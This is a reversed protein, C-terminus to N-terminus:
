PNMVTDKSGLIRLKHHDEHTLALNKHHEDDLTNKIMYNLSNIKGKVIDMTSFTFLLVLALFMFITAFAGCYTKYYDEGQFRLSVKKGFLDLKKIWSFPKRQKM